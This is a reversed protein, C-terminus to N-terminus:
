NIWTWSQEKKRQQNLKRKLFQPNHLFKNSLAPPQPSWMLNSSSRNRAVAPISVHQGNLLLIPQKEKKREKKGPEAHRASEVTKPSKRKL